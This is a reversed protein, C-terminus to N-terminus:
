GGFLEPNKRRVLADITIAGRALDMVEPAFLAIGSQPAKVGPIERLEREAGVVYMMEGKATVYSHLLGYRDKVTKLAEDLTM